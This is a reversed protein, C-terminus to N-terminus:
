RLRGPPVHLSVRLESYDIAIADFGQATGLQLIQIRVDATGDELTPLVCPPLQLTVKGAQSVWESGGWFFQDVADFAQPVEIGNVSLRIDTDSGLVDADGDQVGLTLLELEASVVKGRPLVFSHQYTFDPNQIWRDTFVPDGPGSADVNDTAPVTAGEQLGRGFGDKDGVLSTVVTNAHPGKRPAGMICAGQQVAPAVSLASAKPVPATPSSSDCAALAVLLGAAPFQFHRM